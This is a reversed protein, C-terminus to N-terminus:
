PASPPLMPVTSVFQCVSLPGTSDYGKFVIFLFPFTISLSVFFSSCVAECGSLWRALSRQPSSYTPLIFVFQSTSLHAFNHSLDSSCRLPYLHLAFVLNFFFLLCVRHPCFILEGVSYWTRWGGADIILKIALLKM